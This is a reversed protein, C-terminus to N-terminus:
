ETIRHNQSTVPWCCETHESLRTCSVLQMLFKLCTRISTKPHIRVRLFEGPADQFVLAAPSDLLM